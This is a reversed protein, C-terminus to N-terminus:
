RTTASRGATVALDAAHEEYHHVTNGLVMENAWTLDGTVQALEAYADRLRRFSRSLSSKLQDASRGTVERAVQANFGDMDESIVDQEHGTAGFRYLRYTSADHWAALHGLVAGVTWGGGAAVDLEPDGIPRVLAELRSFAVELERVFGPLTM